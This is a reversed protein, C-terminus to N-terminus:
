GALAVAFVLENLLLAPLQGINDFKVKVPIIPGETNAPAIGLYVKSGDETVSLIDNGVLELTFSTGALIVTKTVIKGKLPTPKWRRMLQAKVPGQSIAELNSGGTDDFYAELDEPKIEMPSLGDLQAITAVSLPSRSHDDGLRLWPILVNPNFNSVHALFMEGKAYCETTTADLINTTSTPVYLNDAIKLLM